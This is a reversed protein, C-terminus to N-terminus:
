KFKIAGSCVDGEEVGDLWLQLKETREIFLEDRYNSVCTAYITGNEVLDESEPYRMVIDDEIFMEWLRQSAKLSKIVSHNEKYESIVQKYVKNFAEEAETIKISSIERRITNQIQSYGTVSDFLFFSVILVKIINKM